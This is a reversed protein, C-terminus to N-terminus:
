RHAASVAISQGATSPRFTAAPEAVLRAASEGPKATLYDTVLRYGISYGAWLPISGSGFFWDAHSYNRSDFQARAQDLWQTLAGGNLATSWPREGIELLEMSFRDALGESVMAELLTGGYGPDRHRKAHHLEHAVMAPLKATLTTGLNPYNPNVYILVTVADPSRGGIGYGAIANAGDAVVRITVGRLGLSSDVRAATTTVLDTILGHFPGLRGAPDEIVIANPADLDPGTTCAAGLGAALVLGTVMRHARPKPRILGRSTAFATEHSRPNAMPLLSTPNGTLGPSEGPWDTMRLPIGTVVM